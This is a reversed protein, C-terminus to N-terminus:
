IIKEIMAFIIHAATRRIEARGLECDLSLRLARTEKETAIAIYVTGVPNDETGGNPGAVGTVSVGIDSSFKERIGSAMEIATEASVETHENITHESVGLINIKIENTYSIVGGLYVASVGSVDTLLKGVLGGTCSEATALTLKKRKLDAVLGELRQEGMVCVLEAATKDLSVSKHNEM